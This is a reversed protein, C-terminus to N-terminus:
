YKVTTAPHKRHDMQLLGSRYIRPTSHLMWYAMGHCVNAHTRMSVSPQAPATSTTRPKHRLGLERQQLAAVLSLSPRPPAPEDATPAPLPDLLSSNEPPVGRRLLRRLQDPPCSTSVACSSAAVEEDFMALTNAFAGGRRSLFDRILALVHPNSDSASMTTAAQNELPRSLSRLAFCNIRPRRRTWCARGDTPRVPRRHAAPARRQEDYYGRM